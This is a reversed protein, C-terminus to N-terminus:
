ELLYDLIQISKGAHCAAYENYKADNGELDQLLNLLNAIRM